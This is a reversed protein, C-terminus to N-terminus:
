AASATPEGSAASPYLDYKADLADLFAALLDMLTGLHIRRAVLFDESARLTIPRDAAVEVIEPLGRQRLFAVCNDGTEFDLASADRLEEVADALSATGALFLRALATLGADAPQMEAVRQRAAMVRGILLAEARRLREVFSRMATARARVAAASGEPAVGLSDDGFNRLDEAFALAADLHDALLLIVPPVPAVGAAM